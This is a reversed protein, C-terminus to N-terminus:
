AMDPRSFDYSIRATYIHSTNNTESIELNTVSIYYRIGNLEIWARKANQLSYFLYVGNKDIYHSTHKVEIGIRKEYVKEKERSNTNNYFDFEQKEYYELTKQRYGEGKQLFFGVCGCTSFTEVQPQSLNKGWKVSIQYSKSTSYPM